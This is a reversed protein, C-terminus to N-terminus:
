VGGLVYALAEEESQFLHSRQPTNASNERRQRTLQLKGVATRVLTAHRPFLAFISFFFPVLQKMVEESAPDTRIPSRRLDVLLNPARTHLERLRLFPARFGIDLAEPSAFPVHNRTMVLLPVGQCLVIEVHESSFLPEAAQLYHALM